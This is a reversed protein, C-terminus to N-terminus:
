SLIKFHSKKFTILGDRQMKGLEKSMNTRELNLYDALQQRNFPIDFENTHKQLSVTNLYSMIRGRASKPSTHFSRGSLTLNKQASIMLLNKIFKDKWTSDCYDTFLHSVNLFMIHCDENAIVDIPMIENPLIAYTEAFFGGDSVNSLITCNGFADNSEITISGSLVIGMYVTTNGASLITEGKQYKKQSAKLDKLCTDLEDATMGQFLVAIKVTNNEKAM